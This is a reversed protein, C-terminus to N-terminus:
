MSMARLSGLIRTAADQVMDEYIMDAELQKGLVEVDPNDQNRVVDITRAPVLQEGDPAVVDFSVQFHLEYTLAKGYRDVAGVRSSRAENGIRIIARADQPQATLRVQSGRLRETIAAGVASGGAPQIMIPNLEPPFEVQGRLKFGCATTLVAGTLVLTAALLIRARVFSSPLLQSPPATRMM